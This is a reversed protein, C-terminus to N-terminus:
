SGWQKKEELNIRQVNNATWGACLEKGKPYKTAPLGATLDTSGKFRPRLRECREM